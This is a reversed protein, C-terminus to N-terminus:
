KGSISLDQTVSCSALLLQSGSFSREQRPGYTMRSAQGRPTGAKWSPILIVGVRTPSSQVPGEAKGQSSGVPHAACFDAGPLQGEGVGVGTAILELGWKGGLVRLSLAAWRCSLM